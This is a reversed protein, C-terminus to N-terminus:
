FKEVIRKALCIDYALATIAVTVGVIMLLVAPSFAAPSAAAFLTLSGVITAAGTLTLFAAGVTALAYKISPHKNLFHSVENTAASIGGSFTNWAVSINM